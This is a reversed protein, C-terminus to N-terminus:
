ATGTAPDCAPCDTRRAFPAHTVTLGDVDVFVCDQTAADTHEMLPRLALLTVYGALIAATPAICPSVTAAEDGPVREDLGIWEASPQGADFTARMCEYCGEGPLFAAASMTLGSSSGFVWPTGLAVAAQNLWQHLHLRPRDAACCVLDVGDFLAWAQDASTVTTRDVTVRVDPNMARIRDAAADVKSRGVDAETYLVQRNLNSWDVVDPDVLHLRGIGLGALDAVVGGGLGGV